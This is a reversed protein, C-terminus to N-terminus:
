HQGFQIVLGGIVIIIMGLWTVSSISEKFFYRGFLISIVAFVAVYTGLLRSFDIKVINVVLGYIGLIIFGGVIFGIASGRLGKRIIADGGVELLGAGVFILWTLLSKM